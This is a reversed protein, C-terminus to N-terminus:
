RLLNQATFFSDRTLIIQVSIDFSFYFNIRLIVCLENGDFTVDTADYSRNTSTAYKVSALLLPRSHIMPVTEGEIELGTGLTSTCSLM